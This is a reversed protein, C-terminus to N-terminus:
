TCIAELAKTTPHRLHLLRHPAKDDEEISKAAQLKTIENHKKVITASIRLDVPKGKSVAKLHQIVAKSLPIHLADIGTRM